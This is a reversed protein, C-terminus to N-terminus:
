EKSADDRKDQEKNPPQQSALLAAQVGPDNVDVGPLGRLISAMFDPDTM